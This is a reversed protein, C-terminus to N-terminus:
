MKKNYYINKLVKLLSVPILGVFLPKIVYPLGLPMMNMHYFGILKVIAENLRYRYKRRKYTKNDERIYYLVEHINAGKYGVAYLRMLLHYDESRLVTRSESYMLTAFVNSRFMLSAHVFPLTMLFDKKEPSGCYWYQKQQDGPNTSFFQGISGVFSYSQHQLLFNRQVELRHPDAYDDSDMIAIYNGRAIKLCRNRAVSAKLNSPNQMLIVRSDGQAIERLVQHTDNTSGDDCIILEFNDFTQNLISSIATKLIIADMNYTAMIVSIEVM